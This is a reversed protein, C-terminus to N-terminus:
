KFENFVDLGEYVESDGDKRQEGEDKEYSEHVFDILDANPRNLDEFEKYSVLGIDPLEHDLDFPEASPIRTNNISLNRGFIPIFFYTFISM